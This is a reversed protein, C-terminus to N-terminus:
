SSFPPAVPDHSFAQRYQHQAHGDRRSRGKTQQDADIHKFRAAGVLSRKQRRGSRYRRGYIHIQDSLKVGDVHDRTRVGKGGRVPRAQSLPCTPETQALAYLQRHDIWIHRVDDMHRCTRRRDLLRNRQRDLRFRVGSDRPFPLGSYGIQMPSDSGVGGYNRDAGRCYGRPSVWLNNQNDRWGPKEVHDVTLRNRLGGQHGQDVGPMAHDGSRSIVGNM